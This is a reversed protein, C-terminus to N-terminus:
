TDSNDWYSSARARGERPSMVLERSSTKKELVGSRSVLM